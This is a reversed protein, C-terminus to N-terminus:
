LHIVPIELLRHTLLRRAQPLMLATGTFLTSGPFDGSRGVTSKEMWWERLLILPVSSLPGATTRSFPSCVRHPATLCAVMTRSASFRRSTILHASVCWTTIHGPRQFTRSLCSPSIAPIAGMPPRLRLRRAAPLPRGTYFLQLLVLAKSTGSYRGVGTLLGLRIGSRLSRQAQM